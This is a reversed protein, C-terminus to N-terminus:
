AQEDAPPKSRQEWERFVQDIVALRERCFAKAREDGDREDLKFAHRLEALDRPSWTRYLALLAEDDM